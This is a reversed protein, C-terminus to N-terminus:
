PVVPRAEISRSCLGPWGAGDEGDSPVMDTRQHPTPTGTCVLGVWGVPSREGEGAGGRRLRGGEKARRRKSKWRRTRMRRRRRSRHEDEDEEKEVVRGRRVVAAAAAAPAVVAAATATVGKGGEAQWGSSGM